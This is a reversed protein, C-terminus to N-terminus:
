NHAGISIYIKKFNFIHARTKLFITNSIERQDIVDDGNFPKKLHEHSTRGTSAYDIAYAIEKKVEDPGNRDSELQLRFSSSKSKCEAGHHTPM